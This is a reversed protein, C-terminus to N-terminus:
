GYCHNLPLIDSHPIPSRDRGCVVSRKFYRLSKTMQTRHECTDRFDYHIVKSWLNHNDFFEAYSENVAFILDAALMYKQINDHKRVILEGLSFQDQDVALQVGKALLGQTIMSSPRTGSTLHAIKM